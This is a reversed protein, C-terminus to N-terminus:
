KTKIRAMATEAIGSMIRVFPPCPHGVSLEVEAETNEVVLEDIAVPAVAALDVVELQGPERVALGLDRRNEDAAVRPSAAPEEAAQRIPSRFLTTYPFLTPM